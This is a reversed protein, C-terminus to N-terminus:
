EREDPVELWPPIDPDPLPPPEPPTIKGPEPQDRPPRDPTRPRVPLIRRGGGGNGMMFIFLGGAIMDLILESLM